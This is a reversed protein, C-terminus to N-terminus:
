DSQSQSWSCYSVFRSRSDNELRQLLEGLVYPPACSVPDDFHTLGAAHAAEHVITNALSANSRDGIGWRNIRAACGGGAEYALNQILPNYYKYFAMPGDYTGLSAQDMHKRLDSIIQESTLDKWDDHTAISDRHARMFEDLSMAFDDSYVRDIAIQAAREIRVSDKRPVYLAGSCREANLGTGCSREITALPTACALLVSFILCPTLRRSLQM